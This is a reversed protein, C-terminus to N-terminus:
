FSRHLYQNLVESVHHRPTKMLSALKELTLDPDTYVKKEEMLQALRDAIAAQQGDVALVNWGRELLLAAETGDGCGLDIATRHTSMDAYNALVDLLLPRPARGKLKQYYDKWGNDDQSM